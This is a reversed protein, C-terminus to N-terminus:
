WAVAPDAFMLLQTFRYVGLNRTRAFVVTNVPTFLSYFAPAAAALPAGAVIYCSAGCRDHVPATGAFLAVTLRKQLKADTSDKPDAGLRGAWDVLSRIWSSLPRAEDGASRWWLQRDARNGSENMHWTM